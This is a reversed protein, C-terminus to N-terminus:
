IGFDMARLFRDCAYRAFLQPSSTIIRWEFLSDNDTLQNVYYEQIDRAVSEDRADLLGNVSRLLAGSHVAILDAKLGIVPPAYPNYMKLCGLFVAEVKYCDGIEILLSLPFDGTTYPHLSEMIRKDEESLSVVEFCTSERLKQIFAERVLKTPNQYSTENTFPLVLVRKVATYENAPYARGQVDLQIPREEELLLCGAGTLFYFTL